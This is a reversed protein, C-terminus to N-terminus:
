SPPTEARRPSKMPSTVYRRWLFPVAFMGLLVGLGVLVADLAYRDILHGVLVILLTVVVNHLFSRLSLVTARQESAVHRNLYSGFLVNKYYTVLYLLFVCVFAVSKLRVLGALIFLAVYLVTVLLLSRREGLRREVRHSLASLTGSVGGLLAFVFGLSTVAYGRSVLYPQSMLTGFAVMPFALLLFFFILWSATPHTFAFAFAGKLHEIQNQVDYRKESTHPEVMSAVVLGALAILLAFLLWPLRVNVRFLYAGVISGCVGTLAGILNLRGAVKLYDSERGLKKLSDYLMAEDAGSHFADSAGSLAWGLVFHWLESGLGVCLFALTSLLSGIVMARKRGVLDAFVGSPLELLLIVSSAAVEMVGIEAYSIFRLLFLVRIPVILRFGLLARSFYFKWVNNALADM